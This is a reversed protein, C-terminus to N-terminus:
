LERSTSVPSDLEFGRLIDKRLSAFLNGCGVFLKGDAHVTVPRVGQTDEMPIIRIFGQM